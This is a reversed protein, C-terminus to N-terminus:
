VARVGRAPAGTELERAAAALAGAPVLEPLLHGGHELAIGRERALPVASARRELWLAEPASGVPARATSVHMFVTNFRNRAAWAFWEDAADVLAAEGLVLCRGRLAPEDTFTDPLAGVPGEARLERHGPWPWSLGLAALLGFVANLLGRPGAGELRVAEPRAEWRFGEGAAAAHEALEFLM